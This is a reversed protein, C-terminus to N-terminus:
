GGAGLLCRYALAINGVIIGARSPDTNRTVADNWAARGAALLLHFMPDLGALLEASFPLGAPDLTFGEVFCGRKSYVKDPAPAAAYADEVALPWRNAPVEKAVSRAALVHQWFQELSSSGPLVGGIGVIAITQPADPM